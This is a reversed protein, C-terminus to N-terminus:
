EIFSDGPLVLVDESTDNNGPIKRFGQDDYELRSPTFEHVPSIEYGVSNPRHFYTVDDFAQYTTITTLPFPLFARLAIEVLVVIVLAVALGALVNRLFAKM